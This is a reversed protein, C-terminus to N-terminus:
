AMFDALRVLIPPSEIGIRDRSPMARGKGGGRLQSGSARATIGVGGHRASRAVRQHPRHHRRLGLAASGGRRDPLARLPRPARLTYPDQYPARALVHAVLERDGEAAGADARPQRPHPSRPTTAPGPTAAEALAGLRLRVAEPRVESFSASSRRPRCAM